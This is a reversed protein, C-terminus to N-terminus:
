RILGILKLHYYKGAMKIKFQPYLRHYKASFVIVRRYGLKKSVIVSVNQKIM